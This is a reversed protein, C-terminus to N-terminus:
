VSRSTPTPFMANVNSTAPPPRPPPTTAFRDKTMATNIESKTTTTTLNEFRPSPVAKSEHNATIVNKPSTFRLSVKSPSARRDTPSPPQRPSPIVGKSAIPKGESFPIETTMPEALSSLRTRPPSINMSQYRQLSGISQNNVPNVGGTNQFIVPYVVKRGDFYQTEDKNNNTNRSTSLPVSSATPAVDVSTAVQPMDFIVNFDNNFPSTSALSENGLKYDPTPTPAKTQQLVSPNFIVSNDTKVVDFVVFYFYPFIILINLTSYYHSDDRFFVPLQYVFHSVVLVWCQYDM